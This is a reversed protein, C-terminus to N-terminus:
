LARTENHLPCPQTRIDVSNSKSPFTISCEFLAILGGDISAYLETTTIAFCTEPVGSTRSGGAKMRKNSRLRSKCGVFLTTNVPTPAKAVAAGDAVAPDESIETDEVTVGVSENVDWTEAAEDKARGIEVPVELELDDLFPPMMPPDTAPPTTRRQTAARPIKKQM